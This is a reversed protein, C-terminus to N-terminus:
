FGIDFVHINKSIFKKISIRDHKELERRLLTTILYGSLFFFVTVGFGAPVFRDLGAHAVFVLLVAIARIGDLSPIYFGTKASNVGVSSEIPTSFNHIM